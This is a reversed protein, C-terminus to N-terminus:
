KRLKKCKKIIFKIFKVLFHTQFIDKLRVGLPITVHYKHLYDYDKNRM